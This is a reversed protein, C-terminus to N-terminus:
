PRPCDNAAGAADASALPVSLEAAESLGVNDIGSKQAVDMTEVVEQYRVSTSALEASTPPCKGAKATRLQNALWDQDPAGAKRPAFCRTNPDRGTALWTGDKNLYIVVFGLCEEGAVEHKYGKPKIQLQMQERSTAPPDDKSCAVLVVLAIWRM